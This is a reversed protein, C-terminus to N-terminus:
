DLYTVRPNLGNEKHRQYEDFDYSVLYTDTIPWKRTETLRDKLALRLTFKKKHYNTGTEIIIFVSKVVFVDCKAEGQFPPQPSSPFPRYLNQVAAMNSPLFLLNKKGHSCINKRICIMKM